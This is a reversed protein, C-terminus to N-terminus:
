AVTTIIFPELGGSMKPYIYGNFELRIKTGDTFEIILAERDVEYCDAITKGKLQVPLINM